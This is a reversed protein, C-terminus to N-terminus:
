IALLLASAVRGEAIAIQYTRAAAPTTMWEVGNALKQWGDREAKNPMVMRQGTGLLLLELKLPLLPIVGAFTIEDLNKYAIPVVGDPNIIISGQWTRTEGRQDKIVFGGGGYSVISFKGDSSLPLIDM